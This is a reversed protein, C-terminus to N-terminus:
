RVLFDDVASSTQQFQEIQPLHGSDEIVVVKSDAIAAFEDAYSVPVFADQRGWVVLTRATIRHLRGRLGRDPIPWFFKGACGLSWVMQSTATVAAEPDEPMALAAAAVEPNHFLLGPLRDASAALLNAVPADDRWLGLPALLVLRSPLTPFHAALEAALMGGFSQGIVVPQNLGLHRVLEEYILVLDCLHDVTHIAYPNGPTTGPFQPAYVTYRESLHQLFPDWALGAAQHLYLLPQGAGAVSVTIPLKGGWTEVIETKVM